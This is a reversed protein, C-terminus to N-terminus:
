DSRDASTSRGASGPLGGAGSEGVADPVRGSVDGGVGSGRSRLRRVTGETESLRQQRAQQEAELAVLAARRVELERQLAAIRAGVEAEAVELERRTRESEARLRLQEARLEAEKEWRATGMLVEGGATFVDALSIGTNGLLLERVQNSHRTGRSKVITIARNREGGRVVYSLHIWTDAITSIQTETEEDLDEVRSVLSTCLVTIGEAKAFDLLRLSAHVASTRGGAKVLASIPDLVMLRPRHASIMEKLAVFHAEASMTETRTSYMVLQGSARHPALDIGVSSLNRVIQDAAEDFSVYLVREGRRCAAVAGAGALTTKATGPAGTILVSSGRYYGGGLMEDLRESGASVRETFVRHELQAEGFTAVEIGTPAIILPFENESFASGRYKLIRLARLSVRDVLRHHLQVVCDVTFQMFAYRDSVPRDRSDAKATIIGTVESALLWEHLRLVERREAAPDNLLTLLVDIGDFVIRKCCMEGAKASLGAVIGALDFDGAHVITAPLKADLFFLKDRELAPLDWGFTSANEIIRQASEEFAVFIGAEGSMRAGNVLAELAFITKGAGPTGTVLTTRHRPLGGGTIEDFGAIGTPAKEIGGRQIQTPVHTPM